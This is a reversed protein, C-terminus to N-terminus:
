IRKRFFHYHREVTMGAREYLLAARTVNGTDVGLGVRRLGADHFLGFAHRLMAMGIGRGRHDAPVGLDRVWGGGNEDYGLLGAVARDGERAFFWFRPDFGAGMMRQRWEDLPERPHRFHGSFADEILAHMAEDDVGRRFAEPRIGAPWTVEPRREGLEITMRYYTRVAEWGDSLLYDMGKQDAGARVTHLAAPGTQKERARATAVDNLRRELDRPLGPRVYADITFDIGPEEDWVEVYGAISGDGAELVWADVAPDFRPRSWLEAITAEDTEAVGYEDIDIAALLGAVAPLDTPRAPRLTLNNM